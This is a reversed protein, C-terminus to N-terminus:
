WDKHGDDTATSARAWNHKKLANRFAGSKVNIRLEDAIAIVYHVYHGQEQQFLVVKPFVAKGPGHELWSRIADIQKTPSWSYISHKSLTRIAQKQRVNLAMIDGLKVFAPM